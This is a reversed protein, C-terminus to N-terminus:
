IPLEFRRIADDLAPLPPIVLPEEEHLLVRPRDPGKPQVCDPAFDFGVPGERRQSRLNNSLM